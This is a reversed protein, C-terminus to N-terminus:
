AVRVSVVVEDDVVTVTVINSRTTINGGTSWFQNGSAPDTTRTPEDQPLTSRKVVFDEEEQLLSQLLIATKENTFPPTMLAELDVQRYETASTEWKYGIGDSARSMQRVM